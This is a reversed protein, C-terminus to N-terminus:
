TASSGSSITLIGEDGCRLTASTNFFVPKQIDGHGAPVGAFVPIKQNEAFRKLVPTVMDKGDPELGGIFDGLVVAKADRFMGALEMQMLLRDVRYGREGREEFFLIGKPNAQLPTALTSNVVMLNGGYVPANIVHKKEAAKNMPQLGSYQVQTRVGSLLERLETVDNPTIKGAGLTSLLPAHLSPWKWFQNLHQHITSVDSYGILLKAKKPAKWKAIHASLRIAGYGGRVCWVAKSDPSYLAHKLQFLREEDTNACIVDDGFIAKSARIKFGCAELFKLGNYLEEGTTRSAPAIVDILDGRQLTPWLFKSAGASSVKPNVGAKPSRRNLTPAKSASSKATTGAKARAKTTPSM